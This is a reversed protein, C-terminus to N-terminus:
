ELNGPIIVNGTFHILQAVLAEAQATPLLINNMIKLKGGISILSSIGDMKTLAANRVNQPSM